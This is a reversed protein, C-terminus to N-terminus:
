PSFGTNTRDFAPHQWNNENVQATIQIIATPILLLLLLITIIKQYM